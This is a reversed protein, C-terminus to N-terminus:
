KFCTLYRTERETSVSFLTEPFFLGFVLRKTGCIPRREYDRWCANDDRRRCITATGCETCTAGHKNGGGAYSANCDVDARSAAAFCSVAHGCDAGSAHHPVGHSSPTARKRALPDQQNSGMRMIGRARGGTWGGNASCGDATGHDVLAQCATGRM